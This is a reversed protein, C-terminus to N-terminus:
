QLKKLQNLLRVIEKAENASIVVGELTDFSSADLDENRIVCTEIAETLKRILKNM